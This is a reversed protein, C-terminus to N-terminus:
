RFEPNSLEVFQPRSRRHLFRQASKGLFAHDFSYGFTNIYAWLGQGAHWRDFDRCTCFLYGFFPCLLVAVCQYPLTNLGSISKAEM